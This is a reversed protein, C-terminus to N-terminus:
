ENESAKLCSEGFCKLQEKSLIFRLNVKEGNKPNSCYVSLIHNTSNEIVFTFEEKSFSDKVELELYYKHM